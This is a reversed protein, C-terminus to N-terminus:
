SSVCSSVKAWSMDVPGGSMLVVVIPPEKVAAAIAEMLDVQYGPLTIAVRDHGESNHLLPIVLHMSVSWLTM